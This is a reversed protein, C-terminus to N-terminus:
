GVVPDVEEAREIRGNILNVKGLRSHQPYEVHVEPPTDGPWALAYQFNGDHDRYAWVQKSSTELMAQFTRVHDLPIFLSGRELRNALLKGDLYIRGQYIWLGYIQSGGQWLSYAGDPIDQLPGRWADEPDSDLHKEYMIHCEQQLHM